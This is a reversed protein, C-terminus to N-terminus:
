LMGSPRALTFHTVNSISNLNYLNKTCIKIKPAKAFILSLGFDEPNSIQKREWINTYLFQKLYDLVQLYIPSFIAINQSIISWQITNEITPKIMHIWYEDDNYRATAIFLSIQSIMITATKSGDSLVKLKSYDSELFNNENMKKTKIISIYACYEFINQIFFYIQYNLYRLLIVIVDNPSSGEDM